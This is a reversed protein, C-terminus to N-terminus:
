PRPSGGNAGIKIPRIESGIKTGIQNARNNASNNARNSVRNSLSYSLTPHHAKGPVRSFSSFQSKPGFSPARVAGVVYIRLEPVQGTWLFAHSGAWRLCLGSYPHFNQRFFTSFHVQIQRDGEPSWILLFGGYNSLGRGPSAFFVTKSWFGKTTQHNTKIKPGM